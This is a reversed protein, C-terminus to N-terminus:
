IVPNEVVSRIWFIRSRLLIFEYFTTVGTFVPTWFSQLQTERSKVFGDSNISALNYFGPLIIYKHAWLEAPYLSPSRIRLDPTRIVRPAGHFKVSVEWKGKPIEPPVM